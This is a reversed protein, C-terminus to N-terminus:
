PKQAVAKRLWRKRAYVAGVTVAVVAIALGIYPALLALRNIPVLVGGIGPSTVKFTMTYEAQLHDKDGAWAVTVNWMGTLSLIQRYVFRSQDDTTVNEFYVYGDELREFYLGIPVNTHNPSLSGAIILEEGTLYEKKSMDATITSINKASVYLTIQGYPLVVATENVGAVSLYQTLNLYFNSGPSTTESLKILLVLYNPGPPLSVSGNIATGNLFAVYATYNVGTPPENPKSEIVFEVIRTVNEPHGAIFPAKIIQWPSGPVANRVGYNKQVRNNYSDVDGEPGPEINVIVCVHTAAYERLWEPAVWTINVFKFDGAKLNDVVVYNKNTYVDKMELFSLEPDTTAIYYWFNVKFKTARVRGINEILAVVQHQKGPWIERDPLVPVPRQNELWRVAVGGDRLDFVWIAASGGRRSGLITLDPKESAYNKVEVIYYDSHEQLVTINVGDRYFTDGVAYLADYKAFTENTEPHSDETIMPPVWAHYPYPFYGQPALNDNIRSVLVGDRPGFLEKQWDPGQDYPMTGNIVEVLYYNKGSVSTIVRLAHVYDPSPPVTERRWIKFTGTTGMNVDWTSMWGKRRLTWASPYIPYHSSAMITWADNFDEQYQYDYLDPEGLLHGAEHAWTYIPDYEAYESLVAIRLNVSKIPVGLLWKTEWKRKPYACTWINDPDGSQDPGAHVIFIFDNEYPEFYDVDKGAKKITDVVFQYTNETRYDGKGYYAVGHDLGYWGIIRSLRFSFKGYSVTQWYRNFEAFFNNFYTIDHTQNHKVDAFEVLIILADREGIVSSTATEVISSTMPARIKSSQTSDSTKVISVNHSTVVFSWLLLWLVIGTTAKTGNWM